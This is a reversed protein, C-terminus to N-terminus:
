TTPRTHHIIPLYYTPRLDKPNTPPVLHDHQHDHHHKTTTTTTTATATTASAADAADAAITAQAMYVCGCYRTPICLSPLAQLLISAEKQGCVRSVSIGGLFAMANDSLRSLLQPALCAEGPGRGVPTNELDMARQAPQHCWITTSTTM